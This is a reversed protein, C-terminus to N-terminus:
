SLPILPRSRTRSRRTIKSDNNRFTLNRIASAITAFLIFGDARNAVPILTGKEISTREFAHAETLRPAVSDLRL